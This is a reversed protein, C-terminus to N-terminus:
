VGLTQGKQRRSTMCFVGLVALAQLFPLYQLQLGLYILANQICLYFIGGLVPVVISPTEKRLVARSLVLGVICLLVTGLHMTSDLFANAMSFFTGAIGALGHGIAIGMGLVYRSSIAHRVFFSPNHGYVALSRGLDARLLFYVGLFIMLCVIGLVGLEGAIPPFRHISSSFVMQVTGHFLGNTLIAALLFPVRLYSHLFFLVGGVIAGGLFAGSITAVVGFSSALCGGVAGVVYSSELAFDPLKLLSLILYAGCLLPFLLLVQELLPLMM